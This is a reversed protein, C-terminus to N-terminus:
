EKVLISFLSVLKGGFRSIRLYKLLAIRYRDLASIVNQSM